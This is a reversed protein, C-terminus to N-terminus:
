EKEKVIMFTRETDVWKPFCEPFVGNYWEKAVLVDDETPDDPVVSNWEPGYCERALAQGWDLPYYREREYVSGGYKATMLGIWNIVWRTNYNM